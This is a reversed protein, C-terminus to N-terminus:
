RSEVPTTSFRPSESALTEETDSDFVLYGLHRIQTRDLGTLVELNQRILEGLGGGRKRFDDWAQADIFTSTTPSVVTPFASRLMARSLPHLALTLGDARRALQIMLPGLPGESPPADVPIVKWSKQHTRKRIEAAFAQAAPESDWVYLWLKGSDPERVRPSNGLDIGSQRLLRTYAQFESDKTGSPLWVTYGM